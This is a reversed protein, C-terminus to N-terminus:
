LPPPVCKGATVRCVSIVTPYTGAAFPSGKIKRLAGSPAIRYASVDNSGNNSFYAFRGKSDVVGFAPNSTNNGDKFPSGAVPSLAGRTSDITYASINSFTKLSSNPAYAFRGTPAITLSEPVYGEAFPSGPLPKLAGSAADITFGYINDSGYSAVYAFKGNPHVAVSRPNFGAAFPSGKIPTLAGSTTSITYASVNSSAYNAVYVFTGTPDVAVSFPELGTKFPSGSVPSLAGSNADISYASVNNSGFDIVYAFKGSPEVAVGIPSSGTAFPSGKVRRLAGSMADITYASVDNSGLNATYAFKGTPDIAIGWPDTGARFPSGALPTLAGGPAISYASVNMSGFNTVYAFEVAVDRGSREREVPQIAYPSAPPLAQAGSTTRSCGAILAALVPIASRNAAALSLRM